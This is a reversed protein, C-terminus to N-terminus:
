CWRGVYESKFLTPGTGGWSKTLAWLCSTWVLGALCTLENDRFSWRLHEITNSWLGRVDEAKPSSFDSVDFFMLILSFKGLSWNDIQTRTSIKNISCKLSNNRHVLHWDQQWNEPSDFNEKHEESSDDFHVSRFFDLNSSWKRKM